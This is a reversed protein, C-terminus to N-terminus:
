ASGVATCFADWHATLTDYPNPMLDETVYLLGAGRQKALAVIGPMDAAPCSHVCHWLKPGYNAEWARPVRARYTAVDGESIMVYDAMQAHEELSQTGPNLVVKRGKSHIYDCLERYYPVHETKNSTCDIFIGACGYWAIHKDVDAKIEAIPRTGYGAAGKSHTYGYVPVGATQARAVLATYSSSAITGPGSGPNILALAPKKAIVADWASAGTATLKDARFYSVPAALTKPALKAELVAIRAGLALLETYIDVAM